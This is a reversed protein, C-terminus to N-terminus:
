AGPPLSVSIEGYVLALKTALRRSFDYREKRSLGPPRSLSCHSCGLPEPSACDPDHVAVGGLLKADENSIQYVLDYDPFGRLVAEPGEHHYDWM